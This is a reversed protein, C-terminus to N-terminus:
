LVLLRRPLLAAVPYIIVGLACLAASCVTYNRGIFSEKGKENFDVQCRGQLCRAIYFLQRRSRSQLHATQRLTVGKGKEGLSVRDVICICTGIKEVGDLGLCHRGLCPRPQRLFWWLPDPWRRVLRALHM